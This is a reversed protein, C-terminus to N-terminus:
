TCSSSSTRARRSFYVRYDNRLFFFFFHNIISLMIYFFFFYIIYSIICRPLPTAASLYRETAAYNAAATDRRRTVRTAYTNYMRIRICICAARIICSCLLLRQGNNNNNYADSRIYRRPVATGGCM